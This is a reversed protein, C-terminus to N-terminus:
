PLIVAGVLRGEEILVNYTSCANRTDMIEIQIGLSNLYSTISKGLPVMSKGMGFIMLEPKPRVIEFVKLSELPLDDDFVPREVKWQFPLGHILLMPGDSNYGGTTTFGKSNFREIYI